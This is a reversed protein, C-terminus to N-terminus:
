FRKVNYEVCQTSRCNCNNHQKCLSTEGAKDQNKILTILCVFVRKKQSTELLAHHALQLIM